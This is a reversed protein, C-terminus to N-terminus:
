SQDILEQIEKLHLYFHRSFDIVMEELSIHKEPGSIWVNKLKSVDIFRIIYAYHINLYKWMPVLVKWDEEQYHQIAIWRDNNGLTAYNPYVLPSEQYQLHIVRHTNNTASDCMHGLIQKITRNQSNKRQSIVKGPLALLKPEWQNIRTLLEQSISEFIDKMM